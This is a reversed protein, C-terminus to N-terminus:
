RLSNRLPDSLINILLYIYIYIYIDGRAAAIFHCDILAREVIIIITHKNVM